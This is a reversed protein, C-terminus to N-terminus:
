AESLTKPAYRLGYTVHRVQQLVSTTSRNPNLEGAQLKHKFTKMGTGERGKPLLRGSKQFTMAIEHLKM